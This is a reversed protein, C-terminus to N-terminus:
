GKQLPEYEPTTWDGEVAPPKFSVPGKRNEHFELMAATSNLVVGAHVMGLVNIRSSEEMPKSERMRNLADQLKTLSAQVGDYKNLLETIKMKFKPALLPVRKRNKLYPGIHLELAALAVEHKKISEEVRRYEPTVELENRLELVTRVGAQNGLVKGEFGKVCWITGGVVAGHQAIVAASARFSCDRAEKMITISGGVDATVNQAINVTYNNRARVMSGEGGQHFGKVLVSGESTLQNEGLVSGIIEIDRRARIHFGKQVDGGVRVGGIFDIHGMEYDLNGSIVLTDKISVNGGDEHAYGSVAAILTQYDERDENPKFGLTKDFRATVAKGAKSAIPKGLADVGPTGNTPRYVRAVDRGAEINEFLGLNYFDALERTADVSAGERFRRVLWVIKGDKGLVPPEGKAVRRGECGKGERLQDTIDRVVDYDILNDQTVKLLEEAIALDSVEAYKLQPVVKAFLKLKDDSVSLELNMQESQHRHVVRM